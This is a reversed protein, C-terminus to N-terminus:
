NYSRCSSNIDLLREWPSERLVVLMCDLKDRWGLPSNVIALLTQRSQIFQRPRRNTPDMWKEREIASRNHSQSDHIRNFFFEENILHFKGHLTLEMLLIRDSGYNSRLLKTKRLVDTRILGFIELCRGGYCFIDRLRESVNHSQARTPSIGGMRLNNTADIYLDNEQNFILKKGDSDIRATRSHCLVVSPDSDLVAVCRELYQSGCKDDHAAWKFYKGSASDVLSNFNRMAGVNVGNKRYQVRNDRAAFRQCIEQTKDTSANDQIILELEQYTQNLISSIADAIYQEGNFVPMGITVTPKDNGM